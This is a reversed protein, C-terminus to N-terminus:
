SSVLSVIPDTKEMRRRTACHSSYRKQDCNDFLKTQELQSLDDLIFVLGKSLPNDFHEPVSIKFFNPTLVRDGRTFEKPGESCFVINFNGKKKNRPDSSYVKSDDKLLCRSAFWNNYVSSRGPKGADTHWVTVRARKGESKKRRRGRAALRNALQHKTSLLKLEPLATRLFAAKTDPAPIPDAM